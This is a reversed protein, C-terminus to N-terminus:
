HDYDMPVGYVMDELGEEDAVGTYDEGVEEDLHARDGFVQTYSVTPDMRCVELFAIRMAHLVDNFTLGQIRMYGPGNKYSSYSREIWKSASHAGTGMYKLVDDIFQREGMHVRTNHHPCWELFSKHMHTKRAVVGWKAAGSQRELGLRDVAVRNKKTLVEQLLWRQVPPATLMKMDFRDADMCAPITRLPVKGRSTTDDVTPRWDNLLHHLFDERGGGEIHKAVATWYASDGQLTDKTNLVAFRRDDHDLYACLDENSSIFLHNFTRVNVADCYLKRLTAVSESLLSKLTSKAKHDGVQFCEDLSTFVAMALLANKEGTIHDPNSCHVFHLNHGFFSGMLENALLGKGVGQPGKCVIAVPMNLAPYTVTIACWLMLFGYRERCGGCLSRLVFDQIPNGGRLDGDSDGTIEWSVRTGDRQVM